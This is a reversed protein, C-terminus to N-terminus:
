TFLLKTKLSEEAPLSEQKKGSLSDGARTRALSGRTGHHSHTKTSFDGYLAWSEQTHTFRRQNSFATKTGLYPSLRRWSEETATRATLTDLCWSTQEVCFVLPKESDRFVTCLGPPRFTHAAASTSAIERRRKGRRIQEYLRDHEHFCCSLFLTEVYKCAENRAPQAM